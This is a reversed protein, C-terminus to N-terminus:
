ILMGWWAFYGISGIAIPIGYPLLLMSSKREAAMTALQNPDRVVLIETLIGLFQNQHHRWARRYIVMAMAIIAGNRTSSSMRSMPQKLRVRSTYTHAM